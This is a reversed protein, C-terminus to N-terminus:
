NAVGAVSLDPIIDRIEERVRVRGAIRMRPYAGVFRIMLWIVQCNRNISLSDTVNAKGHFVINITVIGFDTIPNTLIIPPAANHGLSNRDHRIVDKLIKLDVADKGAHQFAIDCRHFYKFRSAVLVFGDM